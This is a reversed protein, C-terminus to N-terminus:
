KKVISPGDIAFLSGDGNQLILNGHGADRGFGRGDQRGAEM